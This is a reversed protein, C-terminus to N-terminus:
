QEQDQEKKEGVVPWDAMEAVERTMNQTVALARRLSYGMLGRLAAEGLIPLQGKLNKWHHPEMSDVLADLEERAKARDADPEETMGESRAYLLAAREVKSGIKKRAAQREAVVQKLKEKSWM